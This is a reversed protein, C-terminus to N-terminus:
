DNDKYQEPTLLNKSENDWNFPKIKVLWGREYPSENVKEPSSILERNTDVIRGSIPAYVESVAKVSEVTMFAEGAEVEGNVEPLEVYIIEHLTKQAYDTIGILALGEETLKVWEHTKTYLLNLPVVFKEM